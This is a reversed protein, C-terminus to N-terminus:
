KKLPQCLSVVLRALEKKKVRSRIQGGSATGRAYRSWGRRGVTPFDGARRAHTPLRPPALAVLPLVFGTSLSLSPARRLPFRPFHRALLPAVPFSAGFDLALWLHLANACDDLRRAAPASPSQPRQPSARLCPHRRECPLLAGVVRGVVYIGRPHRASMSRARRCLTPDIVAAYTVDPRRCRACTAVRVGCPSCGARSPHSAPDRM